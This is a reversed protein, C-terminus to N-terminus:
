LNEAVADILAEVKARGLDDVVDRVVVLGRAEAFREVAQVRPAEMPGQLVMVLAFGRADALEGLQALVERLPPSAPTPEAGTVAFVVVQPALELYFRRFLRLQQAATAVPTAFVVGEVERGLHQQLAVATRLGAHEAMNPSAEFVAKGGLFVVRVAAANELNHIQPGGNRVRGALADLPALGSAPGFFETLRPDEAAEHWPEIQRQAMMVQAVTIAAGLAIGVGARRWAGGAALPLGLLGVLLLVGTPVAADVLLGRLCVARGAAAALPLLLVALALLRWRVAGLLRTLLTVGVALAAAIAWPPWAFPRPLALVQLHRVLVPGGRALFAFAGRDDSTEIWPLWRGAVNARVRRGRAELRVSAPLGPRLVVGGPVADFLAAERTRYAPGGQQAALRLLAFRGHFPVLVEVGDAGARLLPSVERFVLDLEADEHLEVTALLDCDGFAPLRLPRSATVRRAEGPEHEWEFNRHLVDRDSGLDRSVWWVSLAAVVAIAAALGGECIVRHLKSERVVM